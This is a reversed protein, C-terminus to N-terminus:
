SDKASQEAATFYALPLHLGAVPGVLSLWTILYSPHPSASTTSSSTSSAAHCRSMFNATQCPHIHYFPISLIPHDQFPDKADCSLFSQDYFSDMLLLFISSAIGSANRLDLAPRRAQIAGFYGGM